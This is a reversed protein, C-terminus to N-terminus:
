IRDAFQRETNRFFLLGTALLFVTSGLSILVVAASPADVGLLAWRATEIVGVMPNVALLAAGSTDPLAYVVPTAFFLVQMGFATAYRVDRYLVNLASLWLAFSLAVVVAAACCLPLLLVTPGLTVGAVVAVVVAISMAILMDVGPALTAALPALPRPFYVKTILDPDRILSEASQTVASNFPFWLALGVIVFAAYPVGESEVGLAGGVILTFVVMAIVPQIVAWLAGFFTQKYRVKFDRAALIIGVDRYRWLEKPDYLPWFLRTPRNEVWAQPSPEDSAEDPASSPAGAPEDVGGPATAPEHIANRWPADTGTQDHESVAWVPACPPVATLLSLTRTVRAAWM